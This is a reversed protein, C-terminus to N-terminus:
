DDKVGARKNVMEEPPTPEPKPEVPVKYGYQKCVSAVDVGRTTAQKLLYQVLPSTYAGYTIQLRTIDRNGLNLMEMLDQVIPPDTCLKPIEEPQIEPPIADSDDEVVPMTFNKYIYDADVKAREEDPMGALRDMAAQTDINMLGRRVAMDKLSDALQVEDQEEIGVVPVLSGRGSEVMIVRFTVRLGALRGNLRRKMLELGYRIQKGSRPSTTFFLAVSGPPTLLKEGSGDEPDPLLFYFYTNPKCKITRYENASQKKGFNVYPYLGKEGGWVEILERGLDNYLACAEPDCTCSRFAGSATRRMAYDGAKNNYCFRSKGDYVVLSDSLMADIDDSWLEITIENPKTGAFAPHETFGGKTATGVKFYDLAVPKEYKGDKTKGKEGIRVRLTTMPRSGQVSKPIGQTM